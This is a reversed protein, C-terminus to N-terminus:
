RLLHNGCIEVSNTLDHRFGNELGNKWTPARRKMSRRQDESRGSIRPRRETPRRLATTEGPRRLDDSTADRPRPASRGPPAAASTRRAEWSSWFTVYSYITYTHIRIYSHLHIYIFLTMGTTGCLATASTEFIPFRYSLKTTTFGPHCLSAM